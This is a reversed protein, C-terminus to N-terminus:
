GAHGIARGEFREDAVGQARTVARWDPKQMDIEIIELSHVVSVAMGTTVGHEGVGCVDDALVYAVAIQQCAYTAIFKDYDARL